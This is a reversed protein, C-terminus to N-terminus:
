RGKPNIHASGHCYKLRRSYGRSFIRKFVYVHYYLYFLSISSFSHFNSVAMKAGNCCPEWTIGDLSLEIDLGVYRLYEKPHLKQPPGQSQFGSILHIDELDVTFFAKQGVFKEYHFCWASDKNNLRGRAASTTNESARFFINYYTNIKLLKDFIM